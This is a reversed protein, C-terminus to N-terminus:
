NSRAVGRGKEYSRAAGLGLMGLIVPMMTGMDLPPPLEINVQAIVLGYNIFPMVVFNFAIALGCTWGIFPRWGAVFISKHAAEQQNTQHIAMTEAHSHEAGMTALRHALENAKDKDEIFESVLPVFKDALGAAISALTGIM